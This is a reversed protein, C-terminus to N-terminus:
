WRYTSSTLNEPAEARGGQRAVLRASDSASGACFRDPRGALLLEALNRFGQAYLAWIKYLPIPLSIWRQLLLNAKPLAFLFLPALQLCLADSPKARTNSTNCPKKSILALGAVVRALAAKFRDAPM